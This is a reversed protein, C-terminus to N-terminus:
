RENGVPRYGMEMADTLATLESPTLHPRAMVIIKERCEALSPYSGVLLEEISKTLALRLTPLRSILSANVM